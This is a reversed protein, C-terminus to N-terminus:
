LQDPLKSFPKNSFKRSQCDESFYKTQNLPFSIRESIFYLKYDSANYGDKSPAVRFSFFTSGSPAFEKM